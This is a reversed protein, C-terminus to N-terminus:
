KGGENREVVERKNGKTPSTRVSPNWTSLRCEFLAKRTASEVTRFEITSEDVVSVEAVANRGDDNSTFKTLRWEKPADGTSVINMHGAIPPAPEGSHAGPVCMITM